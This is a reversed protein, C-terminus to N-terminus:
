QLFTVDFQADTPNGEEDYCTIQLPVWGLSGNGGSCNNNSMGRDTVLVVGNGVGANPVYVTYQGTGTKQATLKGGGFGNYNYAHAPTYIQTREPRDAWAYSGSLGSAPAADVDLTYLLTFVKDARAGRSDFCLVNVSTGSQDSTWGSTQCRGPSTGYATIQVDGGNRTLGPITATYSGTGKRTMTNAIGTSNYQYALSPTYSAETPQDAWLYAMGESANGFLQDRSQYLVSFYNNQSIGGADYCNVFVSVGHHLGIEWGTATCYGSTLETSVQVNSPQVEKALRLFDVEFSGNGLPTVTATGGNSQFSDAATYPQTANPDDAWAFGVRPGAAASSGDLALVATGLM